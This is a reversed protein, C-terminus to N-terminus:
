LIFFMSAADKEKITALSEDTIHCNPNLKNNKNQPIRNNINSSNAEKKM